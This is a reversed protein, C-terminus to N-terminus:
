IWTDIESTGRVGWSALWNNQASLIKDRCEELSGRLLLQLDFVEDFLDLLGRWTWRYRRLDEQLSSNEGLLLEITNLQVVRVSDDVKHVLDELSFNDSYVSSCPRPLATPLTLERMAPAVAASRNMNSISFLSPLSHQAIIGLIPCPKSSAVPTPASQLYPVLNKSDAFPHVV